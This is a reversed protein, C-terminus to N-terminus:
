LFPRIDRILTDTYKDADYANIFFPSLFFSLISTYKAIKWDFLPVIIYRTFMAKLYIATSAM